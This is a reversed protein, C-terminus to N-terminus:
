LPEELCRHLFTQAVQKLEPDKISTLANKEQPTLPIPPKMKESVPKAVTPKIKKVTKGQQFRLSTIYPKELHANITKIIVPTLLYLEQLWSTDNVGLVLSTDYIKEISVRSTLNGMIMPWDTLLKTKWNKQFASKLLDNLM